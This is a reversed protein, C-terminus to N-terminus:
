FGGRQRNGRQQQGGNNNNRQPKKPALEEKIKKQYKLWKKNQKKSLIAELTENLIEENERIEERVPRIIKQVKSRIGEKKNTVPNELDDDDNNENRNFQRRQTGKETKMIEDLDNFKDSNLFAIEKIKFNYDKLAKKVKNQTEENKVKIKKIVKEIDYYFIGAVDSAKFEKVEREEGRQGNQNQQQRGSGNGGRQGQAYFSFNALLLAILYIKKM